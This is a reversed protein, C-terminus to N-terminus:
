RLIEYLIKNLDEKINIEDQLIDIGKTMVYMDCQENPIRYTNGEDGHALLIASIGKNMHLGTNLGTLYSIM